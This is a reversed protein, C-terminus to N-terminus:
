NPKKRGNTKEFDERAQRDLDQIQGLWTKFAPQAADSAFSWGQENATVDGNAEQAITRKIVGPHAPHNPKTFYWMAYAKQCTVLIFDPYEAPACDADQAVSDWLTQYSPHDQAWSPTAFLLLLFSFALVRRKM